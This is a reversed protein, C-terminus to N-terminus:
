FSTVFEWFIFYLLRRYILTILKLKISKFGNVNKIHLILLKKEIM